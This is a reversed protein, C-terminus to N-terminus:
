NAPNGCPYWAYGNARPQIFITGGDLKGYGGIGGALGELEDESVEATTRKLEEASIAYGAAFAIAVVADTNEAAQLQEQLGPDAKVAELFANLQEEPM